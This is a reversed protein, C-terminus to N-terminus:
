RAGIQKCDGEHIGHMLHYFWQEIGLAFALPPAVQFAPLNKFVFNITSVANIHFIGHFQFEM